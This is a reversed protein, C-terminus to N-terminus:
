KSKVKCLVFPPHSKAKWRLIAGNHECTKSLLFSLWSFPLSHYNSPLFKSSPKIRFKWGFVVSPSLLLGLDGLHGNNTWRRFPDWFIGGKLLSSRNSQKAPKRWRHYEDKQPLLNGIHRTQFLNFVDVWAMQTAMQSRLSMPDSMAVHRPRLLPKGPYLHRKDLILTQPNNCPPQGCITPWLLNVM